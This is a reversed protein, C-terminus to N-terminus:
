TSGATGPDCLLNVGLNQSILTSSASYMISDGKYWGSHCSRKKHTISTKYHKYFSHIFLYTKHKLWKACQVNKHDVRIVLFFICEQPAFFPSYENRHQITEWMKHMQPGYNHESSLVEWPERFLILSSAGQADSKTSFDICSTYVMRLAWICVEDRPLNHNCMFFNLCFTGISSPLPFPKFFSPALLASGSALFTKM